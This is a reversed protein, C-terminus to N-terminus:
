EDNKGHNEDVPQFQELVKQHLKGALEKRNKGTVPKNGFTMRCRFSKLQLLEFFHDVFTMTGWWCVTESALINDGPIHYSISAYYVPTNSRAPFYLLSPRFPLVTEGRTSTGEPFLVVGEQGESMLVEIKSNARIIDRNNGRDIFIIGMFRIVSGLVPWRGVEKKAIFTTNLVAWIPFIDIYSLHNCVLFFPTKPPTGEINIKMGMLRATIRSWIGTVRHKFGANQRGAMINFARGLAYLLITATSISVIATLRFVGRIYGTM